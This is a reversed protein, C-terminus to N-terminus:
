PTALRTWAWSRTGSTSRARGSSSGEALACKAWQAFLDPRVLLEWVREAPTRVVDTPYANIIM